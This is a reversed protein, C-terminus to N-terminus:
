LSAAALIHNEQVVIESGVSLMGHGKKFTHLPEFDLKQGLNGDFKNQIVGQELRGQGRPEFSDKDAELGDLFFSAATQDFGNRQFGTASGDSFALRGMTKHMTGEYEAQVLM